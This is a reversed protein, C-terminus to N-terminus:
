VEVDNSRFQYNVKQLAFAEPNQGNLIAHTESSVSKENGMWNHHHLHFQQSLDSAQFNPQHGSTPRTLHMQDMHSTPVTQLSFGPETKIKTALSSQNNHYTFYTQQHISVPYQYPHITSNNSYPHNHMTSTNGGYFPLNSSSTLFDSPQTFCSSVSLHNPVPPCIGEEPSVPPTVLGGFTLQSNSRSCPPIVKLGHEKQETETSVFTQALNPQKNTALQLSSYSNKLSYNLAQYTSEAETIVPSVIKTRINPKCDSKEFNESFNSLFEVQKENLCDIKQSICTEPMSLAPVDSEMKLHPPSMNLVEDEVCNFYQGASVMSLANSVSSDFNLQKRGFTEGIPALKSVLPKTTFRSVSSDSYDDCSDCDSTTTGTSNLLSDFCDRNEGWLNELDALVNADDPSNSSNLSSSFNVQPFSSMDEAVSIDLKIM